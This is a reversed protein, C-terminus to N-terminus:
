RVSGQFVLSVVGGLTIVDGDRLAQPSSLRQGNVSTGNNSGLDRLIFSAGERTISAHRRSVEKHQIVVDNAPHRGLVTEPKSLAFRQGAGPGEQITLSARAGAGALTEQYDGPAPARPPSPPYASGPPPYTPAMVAPAPKRKGARMFFIFLLLLILLVIVVAVAILGIFMWDTEGPLAKAGGAPTSWSAPPLAPTPGQAAVPWAPVLLLTMVSLILPFSLLAFAVRYTTMTTQERM